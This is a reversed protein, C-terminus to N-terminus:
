FCLVSGLSRHILAIPLLEEEKLALSGAVCASQTHVSDVVCKPSRNERGLDFTGITPDTVSGVYETCSNLLFRDSGHRFPVNKTSTRDTGQRRIGTPNRLFNGVTKSRIRDVCSM